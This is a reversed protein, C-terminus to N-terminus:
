YPNALIMVVFGVVCAASLALGVNSAAIGSRRARGAAGFGIGALVGVPIAWGSVIRLWGPMDFSAVTSVMWTAALGLCALIGMIMSVMGLAPSGGESAADRQTMLPGSGRVVEARGAM